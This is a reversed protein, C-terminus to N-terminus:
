ATYSHFHYGFALISHSASTPIYMYTYIVCNYNTAILILNNWAVPRKKYGRFPIYFSVPPKLYTFSLKFFNIKTRFYKRLLSRNTFLNILHIKYRISGVWSVNVQEFDVTSNSSFPTFYTWLYCYFCWFPTTRNNKNDSKFINCMHIKMFKTFIASTYKYGRIESIPVCIKLWHCATHLSPSKNKNSNHRQSM